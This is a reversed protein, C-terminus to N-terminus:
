DWVAASEPMQEIIKNAAGFGVFANSFM